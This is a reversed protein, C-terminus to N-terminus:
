NVHARLRNIYCGSTSDDFVITIEMGAAAALMAVALMNKLGLETVGSEGIQVRYHNPSSASTCAASDATLILIFAGDDLPYIEKITSTHFVHAALSHTALSFLVAAICVKRIIKM